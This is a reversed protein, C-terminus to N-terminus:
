KEQATKRGGLHWLPASSAGFTSVDKVGGELKRLDEGGRDRDGTLKALLVSVSQLKTLCLQLWAAGPNCSATGSARASRQQQQAPKFPHLLLPRLRM